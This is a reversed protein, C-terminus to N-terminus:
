DTLVLVRYCGYEDILVYYGLRENARVVKEINSDTARGIEAWLGRGELQRNRPKESKKLYPYGRKNMEITFHM